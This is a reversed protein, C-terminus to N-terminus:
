RFIISHAVLAKGLFAIFAGPVFGVKFLVARILGWVVASNDVGWNNVYEMIGGYLMVYIGLWVMLAIGVIIMLAGVLFRM